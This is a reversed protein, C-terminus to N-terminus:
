VPRIELLAADLGLFVAHRDAAEGVACRSAADLDGYLLVEVTVGARSLTRRWAGAVQGDLVLVGTPVTRGVIASRATGDADLLWKSDSYGVIYEDYGQLLHARHRRGQDVPAGQWFERGDLVLREVTDGLLHLGRRVEATTLSSWWCMDQVTAPGHSRYYRRVLEALAEDPDREPQPPVVDDVLAYTQQKGRLGGSCLISELEAHMLAYAFALGTAPLQAAAFEAALDRRTLRRGTLARTLVDVSRELVAPELGFQRYYYANFKHVRGATLAQMWRLDEPAVFHWTSRLVHTRVLRGDALATDLVDDRLGAARQGVSWKAPGYDQAQVAGLWQLVELVSGAPAADLGLNMLRQAPIDALQM